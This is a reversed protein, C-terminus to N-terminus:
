DNALVCLQPYSKGYKYKEASSMDWVVYEDTGIAPLMDAMSANMKWTTENYMNIGGIIHKRVVSSYLTQM